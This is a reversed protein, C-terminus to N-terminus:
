SKLRYGSRLMLWALTGIAASSLSCVLLGLLPSSDSTGIVGFRVGDILYFVPNLHSLLRLVPPLAEVSYFTGSLFALPTVIFNTIAAMQDFKEAFVGAVIGLGGLFLAGLVVFLLAVLPHEPVVGLVLMLGSGIGLAVLVGRAVAGALYGLLIEFGSLPPMLTDVINGQVKTIVISSSTNAFANQIVTMMMIGPALFEIFPVGMVDGRGPGIAINFIMLFLAATVMPAMLTQTWVVLFRTIERRALTRLGLWNMRGFRREGLAIAPTAPATQEPIHQAM